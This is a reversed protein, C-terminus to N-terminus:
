AAEVHQALAALGVVSARSCLQHLLAAALAGSARWRNGRARM